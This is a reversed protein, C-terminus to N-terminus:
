PEKRLRILADVAVVGLGAPRVVIPNVDLEALRGLQSEAYRTVALIADILAPVDGAPKGRFGALLRGVRLRLLAESVNAHTFPPLVSTSDRLIETLTGGAGLVLTLGFQPDILVGVLIEAVGDVIMQEVLLHAALSSLKHAAAAAETANRINLVVGGLDSKHELRAASAKMVVPYGLADAAAAAQPSPVHQSRPIPLGQAALATKAQHESLAYTDTGAAAGRVPAADVPAAPVPTLPKLLRLEFPTRWNEGVAGALDMAELAERQGQLPVVGANLCQARVRASITEPLSSLLVARSRVGDMAASAVFEDIVVKFAQIDARQEPPSDLMFAVADFGATLVTDFLARQAVLDFWTYTHVDFPNSITVREGLINQLRQSQESGFPPFSLGLHRSADATMAMDGGSAGMVLVRRGALPGGAHFIKLTECLAGLSECRAIGAQRCFADFIADAGALAGTHSQATRAATETRGTKVLAIPKGVSQALAAARAFHAPNKIGEVYLGFASVREDTCLIEILDEIALRTQNGVTLIYGIPLSRENFMLTLAITGSQCILAVGRELPDGVVQDPWLACRDFFNVAGYCNPGFFPMTPASAVLAETLAQGQATGLESFGSAFCVFGGAGRRQLAAAIGSVEQAPVAVFTQDPVGPLEDVSRFYHCQATSARTPHIRWLQGRYGIARNGAAVADAWAGGILAISQPQLLRRASSDSWAHTVVM